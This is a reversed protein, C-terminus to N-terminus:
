GLVDDATEKARTYLYLLIFFGGVVFMSSRIFLAFFRTLGGQALMWEGIFTWYCGLGRTCSHIFMGFLVVLVAFLCFGIVAGERLRKLSM